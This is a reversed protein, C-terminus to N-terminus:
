WVRQWIGNRVEIVVSRRKSSRSTSFTLPGAAGEVRVHRLQEGLCASRQEVGKCSRAASAIAQGADYAFAAEVRPPSAFRATFREVFAKQHPALAGEVFDVWLSQARNEEYLARMAPTDSAPLFPAFVHFTPISMLSLSKFQVMIVGADRFDCLAFAQPQKSALKFLISRFDGEGPLFLEKALVNLALTRARDEFGHLIDECAENQESLLVVSRHGAKHVAEALTSGQEFAESWDKFALDYNKLPRDTGSTSYFLPIQSQKVIDVVPLVLHSIASFVLDVGDLAVLKKVGLVAKGADGLNDEAVLELLGPTALNAEEFALTLGRLQQEGSSALKGSLALSAGIKFRRPEEAHLAPISATLVLLLALRM